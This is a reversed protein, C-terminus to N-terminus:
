HLKRLCRLPPPIVFIFRPHIFPTRYLGKRGRSRSHKARVCGEAPPLAYLFVLSLPLLLSLSLSSSARSPFLSLSVPLPNRHSIPRLAFSLALSFSSLRHPHIYTLPTLSALADISLKRQCLLSTRYTSVYGFTRRRITCKAVPAVFFLM